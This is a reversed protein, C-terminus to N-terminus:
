HSMMVHRAEVQALEGELATGLLHRRQFPVTLLHHNGALRHAADSELLIQVVVM